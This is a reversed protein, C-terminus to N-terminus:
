RTMWELYANERFARQQHLASLGFDAGGLRGSTTTQIAGSRSRHNSTDSDALTEPQPKKRQEGCGTTGSEGLPTSKKDGTSGAIEERSNRGSDDSMVQSDFSHSRPVDAVPIPAVLFNCKRRSIKRSSGSARELRSACNSGCMSSDSADKSSQERCKGGSMQPLEVASSSSACSPPHSTKSSIAREQLNVSSSSIEESRFSIRPAKPQRAMGETAAESAQDIRIKGVHWLAVQKLEIIDGLLPEATRTFETTRRKNLKAQFPDTWCSPSKVMFDNEVYHSCRQAHDGRSIKLKNHEPHNSGNRKCDSRRKQSLEGSGSSSGNEFKLDNMLEPNEPMRFCAIGSKVHCYVVQRLSNLVVTWEEPLTVLRVISDSHTQICDDKIGSDCEDSRANAVGPEPSQKPQGTQNSSWTWSEHKLTTEQRQHEDLNWHAQPTETEGWTGSPPQRWSVDRPRRKPQIDPKSYGTGTERGKGTRMAHPTVAISLHFASVGIWKTGEITGSWLNKDDNINHELQAVRRGRTERLYTKRSVIEVGAPIPSTACQRPDFMTSRPKVYVRYLKTTCDVRLVLGSIAISVM